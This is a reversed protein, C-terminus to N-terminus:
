LRRYNTTVCWRGKLSGLHLLGKDVKRKGNHEKLTDWKPVLINPKGNVIYCIVCQVYHFLVDHCHGLFILGFCTLVGRKNSNEALRM